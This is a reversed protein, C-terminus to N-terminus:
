QFYQDRYRSRLILFSVFSIFIMVIAKSYYLPSFVYLPALTAELAPEILQNLIDNLSKQLALHSARDVVDVPVPGMEDYMGKENSRNLLGTDAGDDKGQSGGKDTLEQSLQSLPREKKRLGDKDIDKEDKEDKEDEEEEEDKNSIRPKSPSTESERVKRKKGGGGGARGQAPRLSDVRRRKRTAADEVEGARRRAERWDDELEEDNDLDIVAGRRARKRLPQSLLAEEEEEEEGEGEEGEEGREKKGEEKRMMEVEGNAQDGKRSAWVIHEHYSRMATDVSITFPYM